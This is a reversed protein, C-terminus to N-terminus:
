SWGGPENTLTAVEEYTAPMGSLLTGIPVYHNEVSNQLYVQRAIIPGWVIASNGQSFDTVTYVAGQFIGSNEISFGTADTSSGAVFALLNTLPNWEGNCGPSGCVKASNRMTIKGSAYITGRGSYFAETSGGFEIDGDFFITGHITLAKTSPNWMLQGVLAGQSDRVQCDYAWGPTLNVPLPLSRNLTTDTDFLPPTGSVTTCAQMPGPKANAYWYALDVPPKTLPTVQTDITGAYISDSSGCPSHLPGGDRSCGGAIHVESIPSGAEGIHSSNGLSVKGGVQLVTTSGSIQSSNSLCLDGKVYLPVAVNVSNGLSMCSTPAEAYIYNWIANNASGVQGTGLRVRGRVTRTVDAARIPSQMAGVGTLTWVKATADYVGSWTVSGGELTGTRLPVSNPDTPDSANYLTAYAYALGAEGLALARRDAKSRQASGENSTTYVMATTGTIGLVVSFGLAAVLAFGREDRLRHRLFRKM